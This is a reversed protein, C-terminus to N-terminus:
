KFVMSAIGIVGLILLVGGMVMMAGKPKAETLYGTVCDKYMTIKEGIPYVEAVNSNGRSRRIREVGEDKYKLLPCYLATGSNHQYKGDKGVSVKQWKLVGVIEAELTEMEKRHEKIYIFFLSAGAFICIPSLLATLYAGGFKMKAAPTLMLFLGIVTIVWQGFVPTTNPNFIRYNGSGNPDLTLEVVDGAKYQDMSNVAYKKKRGGEMVEVAIEYYFQRYFGLEDKKEIHKSYLVKGETINKPKSLMKHQLIGKVGVIIFAIGMVVQIINKVSVGSIM